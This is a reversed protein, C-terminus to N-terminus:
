SCAADAGELPAKATGFQELRRFKAATAENAPIMVRTLWDACITSNFDIVFMDLRGVIAHNRSISQQQSLENAVVRQQWARKFLPHDKVREYVVTVFKSPAPSAHSMRFMGVANFVFDEREDALYAIFDQDFLARVLSNREVADEFRSLGHLADATDNWQLPTLIRDGVTIAVGSTRGLFLELPKPM